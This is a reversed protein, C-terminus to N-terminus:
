TMNPPVHDWVHRVQKVLLESQHARIRDLPMTEWEPQFYKKTNSM